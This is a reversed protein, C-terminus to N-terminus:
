FLCLCDIMDWSDSANSAYWCDIIADLGTGVNTIFFGEVDDVRGIGNVCCCDLKSTGLM